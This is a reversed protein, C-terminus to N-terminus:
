GLFKEEIGRPLLQEHPLPAGKREKMVGTKEFLSEGCYQCSNTPYRDLSVTRKSCHRCSFYRKFGKLYKLQHNSTRCDPAAKFARYKCTECIVYTCAEKDQNVLKEEFEDRRELNDLRIQETQNELDNVLHKHASGQNIQKALEALKNARIQKLSKEVTQHPSCASKNNGTIDSSSLSLKPRKSPNNDLIESLPSSTKYSSSKLIDAKRKLTENKLMEDVGGHSNVLATARLRAADTICTSQCLSSQTSTSPMPGLDIFTQSPNGLMPKIPNPLSTSNRRKENVSSFFKAFTVSSSSSQTNPKRISVLPQKSNTKRTSVRSVSGTSDTENEHELHKLLNLSGASPRRLASVLKSEAENLEAPTESSKPLSKEKVSDKTSNSITENVVVTACDKPISRDYDGNSDTTQNSSVSPRSSSSSSKPTTPTKGHGGLGTSADFQYGAATLKAVSLKVRASPVVSRHGNDLLFNTNIPLTYVGPESTGHPHDGSYQSRRSRGSFGPLSASVFGPRSSSAEIYAKKVHFECYRCITKNIVHFCSQGSKTTASCIGYDPSEGLIMVHLPSDLTIGVDKEDTFTLGSALSRPNLVAVVSGETEKWLKEHCNGFLFLKVCGSASGPGVQELDSLCWVSYVRDNRSRRPPLKSGIVGVVVAESCFPKQSKSVSQHSRHRQIYQPLTLVERDSTRSTWLESSIRARYVRLRTPVALWCDKDGTSSHNDFNNSVPTIATSKTPVVPSKNGFPTFAANNLSNIAEKRRLACAALVTSVSKNPNSGSSGSLTTKLQKEAEELQIVKNVHQEILKDKELRQKVTLCKQISAGNESLGYDKGEDDEIGVLENFDDEDSNDDDVGDDSLNDVGFLDRINSNSKKENLILNSPVPEFLENVGVDKVCKAAAKHDSSCVIEHSSKGTKDEKPLATPNSLVSSLDTEGIDDWDSGSDEDEDDNRGIFDNIEKETLQINDSRRM